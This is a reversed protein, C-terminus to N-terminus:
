IESGEQQYFPFVFNHRTNNARIRYNIEILVKGAEADALSLSVSIPEIRPEHYHISTKVKDEMISGLTTTLPEFLLPTLDCGYKPQMVREGPLTSLLIRLSEEIDTRGDSLRASHDLPLFEPPFSWGTGVFAPTDSESNM